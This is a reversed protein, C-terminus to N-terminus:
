PRERVPVELPGLFPGVPINNPLKNKYFTYVYSIKVVFWDKEDTSYLPIFWHGHTIQSGPIMFSPRM